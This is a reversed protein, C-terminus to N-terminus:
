LLNLICSTQNEMQQVSNHTAEHWLSILVEMKTSYITTNRHLDTACCNWLSFGYGSCVMRALSLSGCQPVPGYHIYDSSLSVALSNHNRDQKCLPLKGFTIIYGFNVVFAYMIYLTTRLQRGKKRKKRFEDVRTGMEGIYSTQLVVGMTVAFGSLFRGAIVMWGGTALAYVIGGIIYIVSAVVPTFIYPLKEVMFGAFPSGAIEGASFAAITWAYM